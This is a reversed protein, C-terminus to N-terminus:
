PRPIYFPTPCHSRIQYALTMTMWVHAKRKKLLQYLCKRGEGTGTKRLRQEAGCDGGRQAGRRMRPSDPHNEFRIPSLFSGRCQFHLYPFPTLVRVLSAWRRVPSQLNRQWLWTGLSRLPYLHFPLLYWLDICFQKKKRGTLSDTHVSAYFVFVKHLHCSFSIGPFREKEWPLLHPTPFMDLNSLFLSRRQWFGRTHLGTNMNNSVMSVDNIATSLLM